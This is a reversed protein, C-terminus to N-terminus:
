VVFIYSSYYIIHIYAHIYMVISVQFTAGGDAYKKKEQNKIEDNENYNKKWQIKMTTTATTAKQEKNREDHRNNHSLSKRENSFHSKSQLSHNSIFWIPISSCMYGFVLYYYFLANPVLYGTGAVIEYLKWIWEGM